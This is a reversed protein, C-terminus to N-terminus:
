LSLAQLYPVLYVGSIDVIEVSFIIVSMKLMQLFGIICFAEFNCDWPQLRPVTITSAKEDRLRSELHYVICIWLLMGQFRITWSPMGQLGHHCVKFDMITYKSTWSPMGQLGLHCVEFDM